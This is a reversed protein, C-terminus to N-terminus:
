AEDVQDIMNRRENTHSFTQEKRNMRHVLQAGVFRLFTSAAFNEVSSAAWIAVTHGEAETHDAFSCGAHLRPPPSRLRRDANEGVHRPIRRGAVARRRAADALDRRHPTAYAALCKGESQDLGAKEVASAMGNVSKVPLGNWEVFHSAVIGKDVWRRMHALLRDPTPMTPQKKRTARHGIRKGNSLGEDLDSMPRDRAKHISASAISAARTGAYLGILLFKAVHRLTYKETKIGKNAGGHITLCATACCGNTESEAPGADYLKGRKNRKVVVGPRDIDDWDAPYPDVEM